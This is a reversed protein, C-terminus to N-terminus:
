VFSGEKEIHIDYKQRLQEAQQRRRLEETITFNGIALTPLQYEEDPVDTEPLKLLNRKGKGAGGMVITQVLKAKKGKPVSEKKAKPKFLNLFCM